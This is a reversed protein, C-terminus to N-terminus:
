LAEACVEADELSEILTRRLGAIHVDAERECGAEINGVRTAAERHVDSAAALPHVDRLIGGSAGDGDARWSGLARRPEVLSVKVDSVAHLEGFGFRGGEGCGDAIHGVRAGYGGNLAINGAAKGRVEDARASCEDRVANREVGGCEVGVIRLAKQI